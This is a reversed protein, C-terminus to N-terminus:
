AAGRTHTNDSQNDLADNIARKAAAITAADRGAIARALATTEALLREAPVVASLLGLRYAEDAAVTRGTLLLDRARGEPLLRSLQVNSAILGVKVGVAGLRAAPSGIRVDCALALVLGGGMAWGNVAALVPAEFARITASIAENRRAFEGATDPTLAEEDKLDAGACFARDGAGTVIVARVRGRAFEDLAELIGERSAETILNMPPNDVTIRGIEGDVEWRTQANAGVTM